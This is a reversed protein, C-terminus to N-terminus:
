SQRAAPARMTLDGEVTAGEHVILTPSTVDGIVHGSPLVELRRMCEVTGDVTGAITVRDASVRATVHAGEAVYIEDAAHLEGEVRGLVHLSGESRLTGNWHSNAAIVGVDGDIAPPAAAPRTTTTEDADVSSYSM